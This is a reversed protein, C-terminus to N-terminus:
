TKLWTSTKYLGFTFSPCSRTMFTVWKSLWRVPILAAVRAVTLILYLFPLLLALHFFPATVPASFRWCILIMALFSGVGLALTTLVTHSFRRVLEM